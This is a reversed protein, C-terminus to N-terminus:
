KAMLPLDIMSAEDVVVVDFPLPNGADHRFRPSGPITGLLRHLTSGSTPLAAIVGADTGEAAIAQLANRVSEAMREAARGTPAALAIRPDKRGAARSQEVLQVLMRAITTTKGTGPGGTVLDVGGADSSSKAIRQLGAAVRREYERYRRLYLLGPAGPADELVLPRDADSVGAG